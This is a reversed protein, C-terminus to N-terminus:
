LGRSFMRRYQSGRALADMGSTDFVRLSSTLDTRMRDECWSSWLTSNVNKGLTEYSGFKEHDSALRPRRETILRRHAQYPRSEMNWIPLHVNRFHGSKRPSGSLTFYFSGHRAVTSQYHYLSKLLPLIIFVLACILLLFKGFEITM